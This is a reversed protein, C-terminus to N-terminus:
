DIDEVKEINDAGFDGFFEPDYYLQNNLFDAISEKNNFDIEDDMNEIGLQMTITVLKM